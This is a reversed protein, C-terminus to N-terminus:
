GCCWPRWQPKSAHCAEAGAVCAGSILFLFLFTVAGLPTEFYDRIRRGWQLCPPPPLRPCRIM